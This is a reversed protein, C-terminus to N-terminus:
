RPSPAKALIRVMLQTVRTRVGKDRSQMGQALYGLLFESLLMPEAPTATAAAKAKATRGGKKGVPEKVEKPKANEEGLDSKAPDTWASSHGRRRPSTTLWVSRPGTHPPHRGHAGQATANAQDILPVCALLFDVALDVARERKKVVLIQM